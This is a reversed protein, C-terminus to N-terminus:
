AHQPGFVKREERARESESEQERARKIKYLLFSSSRKCPSRVTGLDNRKVQISLSRFLKHPALGRKKMDHCTKAKAAAPTRAGMPHVPSKIKYKSSRSQAHQPGFVQREERARESM